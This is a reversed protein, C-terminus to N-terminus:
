RTVKWRQGYHVVQDAGVWFSSGEGNGREGADWFCPGPSDEQVCPPMPAPGNDSAAFVAASTGILAAFALGRVVLEGRRTLRASM